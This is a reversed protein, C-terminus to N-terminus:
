LISSFVVVITYYELPNKELPIYTDHRDRDADDNQYEYNVITMMTM